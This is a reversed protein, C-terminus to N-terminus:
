MMQALANPQGDLNTNLQRMQHLENAMQQSALYVLGTIKVYINFQTTLEDGYLVARFLKQLEEKTQCRGFDCWKRFNPHIFSLLHKSLTSNM